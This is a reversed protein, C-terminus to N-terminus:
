TTLIVETRGGDEACRADASVLVINFTVEKGLEEAMANVDQVVQMISMVEERLAEDETFM